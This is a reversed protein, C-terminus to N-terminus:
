EDGKGMTYIIGCVGQELGQQFREEAGESIKKYVEKREEDTMEFLWNYLFPCYKKKYEHDSLFIRDRIERLRNLM